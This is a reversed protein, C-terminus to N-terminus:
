FTFTTRLTGIFADEEDNNQGPARLWIIGPTVSINDSVRDKYFGEVHIPANSGVPVGPVLRGRAYPEAGAFIGLVNGRKGFDPLAVGGGYSWVQYDNDSGQQTVDHYSVFGSISLKDSPRFAASIGYSNSNAAATLLNAQRTGVVGGVPSDGSGTTIGSDFLASGPSHYGHVYTAALALRDGVAFNLQGLAAYSGNFLGGGGAAGTVNAPNNADSALYGVTISSPKFISGGSSFPINLAIGAGGGVRYIPNESAFTTLAGNGGDTKDFFYPNNVAAYHSHRGGAAALYVQAPGIPAEYTLRDIRVANNGTSGVEYTKTGEATQLENNSDDRFDFASANGAALRTTLKDKGTFSTELGLRVRDQFVTNNATGTNGGFVDSVAFIAEGV